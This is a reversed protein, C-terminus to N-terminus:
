TYKKGEENKLVKDKKRKVKRLLSPDKGEM